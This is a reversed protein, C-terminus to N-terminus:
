DPILENRTIRTMYQQIVSKLQPLMAEAIDRNEELLNHQQLRDHKFDYIAIVNEGDFQICWDGRYFQYFGNLYNIAWTDEDATDLLNCGFSVFAKDYGLYSLVTPMIDAQQAIGDRFQKLDGSPDFILIPIEFMGYNTLYEPCYTFNIHDASIVFVTNDYWDSKKAEEFFEKLCMDTYNVCRCMPHEGSKLSDAYKEPVTFPHHSTASFLTTVFPEQMKDMEEKFYLFFPEDFIAWTGDFQSEDGFTQRNYQGTYGQINTFAEFAMSGKNAGHFFSANYGKNRVLEGAIGSIDNNAYSTLFYPEVLSPVGSLISPLAEISKRGNAFSWRFCLSEQMLSDLFPMFGEYPSDQMETLFGSYSASFSELVFICVNKQKFEADPAPYHVADFEALMEEESDFYDPIVFPTNGITRYMCLPTNLVIAAESPTQVYQNADSLTIPRVAVGFGGRLGGVIPYICALFIVTHAAYYRWGNGSDAKPRAYLLILAALAAFGILFLYWHNIIEPLLINGINDENKFESFFSWTTRRGTYPFYAVDVLNAAIAIFNPVVYFLKTVLSYVKGDRFRFPLIVMLIYPLSTYLVASLDFKWGAVCMKAARGFDLTSFLSLNEVTFVVRCITYIVMVLLLNWLLSLLPNFVKLKDRM